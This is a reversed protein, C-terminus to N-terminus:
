ALGGATSGILVRVTDGASGSDLFIGGKYLSIGAVTAASAYARGNDASGDSSVDAMLYADGGSSVAEGAKFYVITGALAVVLSDKNAKEPQMPDLVLVGFPRGATRSVSIMAGNGATNLFAVNGAKMKSADSGSGEVRQAQITNEIGQGLAIMGIQPQASFANMQLAM